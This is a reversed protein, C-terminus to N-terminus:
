DGSALAQAGASLHDQTPMGGMMRGCNESCLPSRRRVRAQEILCPNRQDEDAVRQPLRHEAVGRSQRDGHFLHEMMGFCHSSHDLVREYHSVKGEHGVLDGYFVAHAVGSPHEILCCRVADFELARTTEEIKHAPENIRSDRDHAV